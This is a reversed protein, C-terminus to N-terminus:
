RSFLTPVDEFFANEIQMQRAERAYTISTDVGAGAATDYYDKFSSKILM